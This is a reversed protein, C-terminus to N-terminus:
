AKQAAAENGLFMDLVKVRKMATVVIAAIVTGVVCSVFFPFVFGFLTATDSKMIFRALPFAAMGGLVSTGFLEGIYAMPLRIALSKGKFVWHFMVGSLFAGIMSGPFAFLTGLGFINRILSACFAIGLSYWPGLFVGGIINVLHQVPSCKAGLFPFSFLSGVVAVAVLVAAMTLKRINTKKMIFVEKRRVEGFLTCSPSYAFANVSPQGGTRDISLLIREGCFM